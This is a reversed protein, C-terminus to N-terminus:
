SDDGKYPSRYEPNLFSSLVKFGKMSFETIQLLSLLKACYIDEGKIM